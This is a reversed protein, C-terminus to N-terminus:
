RRVISLTIEEKSDLPESVNKLDFHVVGLKVNRNLSGYELENFSEFIRMAAENTIQFHEALDLASIGAPNDFWKKSCYELIESPSFTREM